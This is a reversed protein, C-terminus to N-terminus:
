EKIRNREAEGASWRKEYSKKWKKEKEQHGVIKCCVWLCLILVLFGLVGALIFTGYLFMM